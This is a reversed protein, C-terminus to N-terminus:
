QKIVTKTNDNDKSNEPMFIKKIIHVGDYKLKFQIRGAFNNGCHKCSFPAIFAKSSFKWPKKRKARYGCPCTFYMERKDILPNELDCLITNKFTLRRYFEEDFKEINPLLTPYSYLQKFCEFALLSDDLARHHSINNDNIELLEAATILGIQKGASKQSSKIGKQILMDECYDQLNVYSDIFFLKDNQLYYRSNEMLTYIDTIGWTMLVSDSLFKKFGSLAHTYTCGDEIDEDTINTLASIKESLKKGVQPKILASFTDTIELNSNVKIAGFEIIENIFGKLKKSYSPNWELDLIVFNM